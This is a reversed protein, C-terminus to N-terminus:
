PTKEIVGISENIINKVFARHDKSPMMKAWPINIASEKIVSRISKVFKEPPLHNPKVFNLKLLTDFCYDFDSKLEGSLYWTSEPIHDIWRYGDDVLLNKTTGILRSGVCIPSGM